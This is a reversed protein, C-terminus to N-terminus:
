GFWEFGKLIIGLLDGYTMQKGDEPWHPQLIM